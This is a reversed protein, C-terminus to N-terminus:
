PSLGTNYRGQVARNCFTSWYNPPHVPIEVSPLHEEHEQHGDQMTAEGQYRLVCLMETQPLLWTELPDFSLEVLLSNVENEIARARARTMPGLPTTPSTPLDMPIAKPHEADLVGCEPSCLM